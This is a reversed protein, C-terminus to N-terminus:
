GGSALRDRLEVLFSRFNYWEGPPIPDQGPEIGYRAKAEEAALRKFRDVEDPGLGRLSVNISTEHDHNPEWAKSWSQSSRGPVWFVSERLFEVADHPSMARSAKPESKGGIPKDSVVTVADTASRYTFTNIGHAKRRQGLRASLNPEWTAESLYVVSLAKVRKDVQSLLQDARRPGCTACSPSDCPAEFAVPTFHGIHFYVYSLPCIPQPEPFRNVYIPIGSETFELGDGSAHREVNAIRRQRLATSVQPWYWGEKECLRAMARREELESLVDGPDGFFLDDLYAAVERSSADSAPRIWFPKGSVFSELLPGRDAKTHATSTLFEVKSVGLQRAFRAIDQANLSKECLWDFLMPTFAGEFFWYLSAVRYPSWGLALKSEVWETDFPDPDSSVANWDPGEPIIPM